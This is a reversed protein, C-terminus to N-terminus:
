YQEKKVCQYRVPRPLKKVYGGEFAKKLWASVQSKHLGTKEILVDITVPDAALRSLEQLFLRYFDVPLEEPADLKEPRSKGAKENHLAEKGGDDTPSSLEIQPKRNQSFMDSQEVEIKLKVPASAKLLSVISLSTIDSEYWQGGKAVLDANAATIDDTPKVWLPVWGKKLNEEAGSLTGGKKGSHIVLASDALCYIYKNRAMANGASFGAEPYFPSVLVAQGRMLGNRWKSSTAAKLLSDAMVGIVIGGSNMAGLMAAEDVGRAGGSVIAINENAAQTGTKETFTLDQNNANRSGIVALGGANLLSKDGCGFLVPPSATKLRAKLRKPYDTDSRTVVWLGARQWKEVALALSHGRGLLQLIRETTIKNDHWGNLLSVPDSVLLDSPTLSKEKLWLAFRGWETNTLPQAAEDSAKSFYSTLLLTAQATSSLNM